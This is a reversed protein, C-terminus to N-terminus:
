GGVYYKNIGYVISIVGLLIDLNKIEMIEEKRELWTINNTNNLTKKTIIDGYPTFPLPFIYYTEKKPLVGIIFTTNQTKFLEPGESVFFATLKDNIALWKCKEIIKSISCWVACIFSLDKFDLLKGSNKMLDELELWRIWITNLNTFLNIIKQAHEVMCSYRYNIREDIIKIWQLRDFRWPCIEFIVSQPLLRTEPGVQLTTKSPNYSVLVLLKDYIKRIAEIRQKISYPSIDKFTYRSLPSREFPSAIITSEKLIEDISKEISEEIAEELTTRSEFELLEAKKYGRSVWEHRWNNFMQRRREFTQNYSFWWGNINCVIQPLLVRLEKMIIDDELRFGIRIFEKIVELSERTNELYKNDFVIQKKLFSEAKELILNLDEQRRNLQELIKSQRIDPNYQGFFDAVNEDSVEKYSKFRTVIPVNLAAKSISGALHHLALIRTIRLKDTPSGIIDSYKQYATKYNNPLHKIIDLCRDPSNVFSTMISGYVARSEHTMWSNKVTLGLINYAKKVELSPAVVFSILRGLLLEFFGLESGRTLEKHLEEHIHTIQGYPNKTFTPISVHVSDDIASYWGAIQSIREKIHWELEKSDM